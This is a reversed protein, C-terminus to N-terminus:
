VSPRRLVVVLVEYRSPTVTVLEALLREATTDIVVCTRDVELAVVGVVADTAAATVASLRTFLRFATLAAFVAYLVTVVGDLVSVDHFTAAAVTVLSAAVLEESSLVPIHTPTPTPTPTATTPPM